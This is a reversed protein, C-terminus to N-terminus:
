QSRPERPLGLIRESVINKQIEDTGGRISFSPSTLFLTLWSNEDNTGSVGLIDMMSNAVLKLVSVSFLKDVSGWAPLRNGEEAESRTRAVHIRLLELRIWADTIKDRNKASLSPGIAKAVALIQNGDLGESSSRGVANRENALTTLAIPWGNGLDGIRNSDPIVVDSLFVENFHSDGNMQRLPRVDIGDSNMDLAFCTIGSHKPQDWDTRALLLGWQAYHARSSWVKQGNVIWVDGERQARTSLSALDSGANPESFLQCWIEKGTRIGPLWTRKQVESAYKIISPGAMNLGINFPYLDPLRFEAFVQSLVATEKASFSLGGYSTPWAAIAWGGSDSESLFHRGEELEDSGAGFLGVEDQGSRRPYRAACFERAQDLLQAVKEERM